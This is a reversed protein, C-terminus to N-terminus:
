VPPWIVYYLISGTALGAMAILHTKFKRSV